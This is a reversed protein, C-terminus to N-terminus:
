FSASRDWFTITSPFRDAIVSMELAIKYPNPRLGM